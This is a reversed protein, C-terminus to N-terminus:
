GRRAREAGGKGVGRRGASAWAAHRPRRPANPAVCAPRCPRRPAPPAAREARHLRPPAPPAARDACRPAANPRRPTQADRRKPPTARAARAAHRTQRSAPPAGRVTSHPRHQAPSAARRLCRVLPTNPAACSPRRPAPPLARTVRRLRLQAPSVARAAQRTRRLCPRLAGTPGWPPATRPCWCICKKEKPGRRSRKQTRHQKNPKQPETFGDPLTLSHTPPRSHTLSVRPGPRSCLAGV